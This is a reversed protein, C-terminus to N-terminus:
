FGLLGKWIWRIVPEIAYELVAVAGVLVIIGATIADWNLFLPQSNELDRRKKWELDFNNM